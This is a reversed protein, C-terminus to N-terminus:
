LTVNVCLVTILLAVHWPVIKQIDPSASRGQLSEFTSNVPHFDLRNLSNSAKCLVVSEGLGKASNSFQSSLCESKKFVQSQSLIWLSTGSGPPLVRSWHDVNTSQRPAYTSKSVSLSRVNKHSPSAERPAQSFIHYKLTCNLHIAPPNHFLLSLRAHRLNM